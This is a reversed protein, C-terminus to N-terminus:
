YCNITTREWPCNEKNWLLVYYVSFLGNIREPSEEYVFHSKARLSSEVLLHYNLKAHTHLLSFHHHGHRIKWNRQKMRMTNNIYHALILECQLEPLIFLTDTNRQTLLHTQLHHMFTYWYVQWRWMDGGTRKEQLNCSEKLWHVM